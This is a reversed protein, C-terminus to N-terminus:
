LAGLRHVFPRRRVYWARIRSTVTIVATPNEAHLQEFDEAIEHVRAM